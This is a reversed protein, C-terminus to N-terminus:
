AFWTVTPWICAVRVCVMYGRTVRAPVFWTVVRCAGPAQTHYPAGPGLTVSMPVYMCRLIFVHQVIVFSALARLSIVKKTSILNSAM